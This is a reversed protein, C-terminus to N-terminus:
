TSESEGVMDARPVAKLHLLILFRCHSRSKKWITKPQMNHLTHTPSFSLSYTCISFPSSSPFHKVLWKAVEEGDGVSLKKKKKKKRDRM